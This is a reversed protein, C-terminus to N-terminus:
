IKCRESKVIRVLFDSMKGNLVRDNISTYEWMEDEMIRTLDEESLSRPVVLMRELKTIYHRELVDCYFAKYHNKSRQQGGVNFYSILRLVRGHVLGQDCLTVYRELGLEQLRCEFAFRIEEITM